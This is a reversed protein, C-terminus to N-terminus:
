VWSFAFSASHNPSFNPKDRGCGRGFFLNSNRAFIKHVFSWIQHLFMSVCVILILKTTLKRRTLASVDEYQCHPNALPLWCSCWFSLVFSACVTSMLKSGLFHNPRCNPNSHGSGRRGEGCVFFLFNSPWFTTCLRCFQICLCTCVSCLRNTYTKHDIELMPPPRGYRCGVKRSATIVCCHHTCL